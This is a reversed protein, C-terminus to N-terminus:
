PRWDRWSATVRQRAPIRMSHAHCLAIALADAEDESPLKPLALLIKVMQQVQSKEANGNGVVALKVAKPGYEQVPLGGKIGACLIAGRAQGLKLAASPDRAFILQEVALMQPQYEAVLAAVRDFLTGLRDPWPQEGVRICGSAIWVSHQGDSDIIAFGTIRSGPDIGLIRQRLVPNLEAM